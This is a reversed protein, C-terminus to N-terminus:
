KNKFFYFLSVGINGFIITNVLIMRITLFLSPPQLDEILLWSSLGTTARWFSGFAYYIIICLWSLKPLKVIFLYNIILFVIFLSLLLLPM